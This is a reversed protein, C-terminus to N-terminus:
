TNSRHGDAAQREMEAHLQYSQAQKMFEVTEQLQMLTYTGSMEIYKADASLGAVPGSPFVPGDYCESCGGQGNLECNCRM